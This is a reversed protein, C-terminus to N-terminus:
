GETALLSVVFVVGFTSTQGSSKPAMNFYQCLISHPRNEEKVSPYIMEHNHQQKKKHLRM